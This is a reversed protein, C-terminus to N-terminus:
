WICEATYVDFGTERAKKILAQSEESNIDITERYRCNADLTVVIKGTRKRRFLKRKRRFLIPYLKCAFPRKDYELVCRGNKGRHPCMGEETKVLFFMGHKGEKNPFRDREDEIVEVDYECCNKKCHECYNENSADNV